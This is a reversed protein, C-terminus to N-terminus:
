VCLISFQRRLYNIDTWSDPMEGSKRLLAFYGSNGVQQIAVVEVEAIVDTSRCLDQANKPPNIEQYLKGTVIPVRCQNFIPNMAM